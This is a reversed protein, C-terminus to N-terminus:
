GLDDSEGPLVEGVLLALYPVGLGLGRELVM